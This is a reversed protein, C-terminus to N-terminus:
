ESLPLMRESLLYGLVCRPAAEGLSSIYYIISHSVFVDLVLLAEFKVQQAIIM